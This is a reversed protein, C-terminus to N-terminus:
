DDHSEEHGNPKPQRGQYAPSAQIAALDPKANPDLLYALEPDDEGRLNMLADNLVSEADEMQGSGASAALTHVELLNALWLRQKRGIEYGINELWEVSHTRAVHEPIGELSLRM